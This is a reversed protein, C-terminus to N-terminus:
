YENLNVEKMNIVRQNKSGTYKQAGEMNNIEFKGDVLVDINKLLLMVERDKTNILQELTFGTYCWIDLDTENHIKYALKALEGAWLFPEGGSFTVGRIIEQNEIVMDYIESVTLLKNTKYSWTHKNHCGECHHPCGQTFLVSRIGKGNMMSNDLFGAVNIM